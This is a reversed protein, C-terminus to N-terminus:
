LNSFPVSFNSLEAIGPHYLSIEHCSVILMGGVSGNYKAAHTGPPSAAFSDLLEEKNMM